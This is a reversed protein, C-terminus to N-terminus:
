KLVKISMRTGKVYVNVNNIDSASSFRVQLNIVDGENVPIICSGSATGWRELYRIPQINYTVNISNKVIHHSFYGAENEYWITHNVEIYSIGKGIRVGNGQVTLKDGVVFDLSLPINQQITDNIIHKNTLSMQIFNNTNLANLIADKFEEGIKLM